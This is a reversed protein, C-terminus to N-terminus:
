SLRLVRLDTEAVYKGATVPLNAFGFESTCSRNSCKLFDCWVLKNRNLHKGILPEFGTSFFYNKM